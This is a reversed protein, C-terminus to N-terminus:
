HKSKAEKKFAKIFKEADQFELILFAIEEYSLKPETTTYKEIVKQLYAGRELKIQEDSM